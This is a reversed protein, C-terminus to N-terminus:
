RTVTRLELFGVGDADERRVLVMSDRVAMVTLGSPLTVIGELDETGFILWHHISDSPAVGERLWIRGNRDGHVLDFPPLSDPFRPNEFDLAAMRRIGTFGGAPLADIEAHDLALQAARMDETVVRRARDLRVIRVPQGLTDLWRLEWREGDSVVLGQDHVVLAPRLAFRRARYGGALNYVEIGPLALLTDVSGHQSSIRELAVMMRTVGEGTPGDSAGGYALFVGNPQAAVIGMRVGTPFEHMRFQRTFGLTDDYQHIMGRMYELLSVGAGHTYPVLSGMAPMEGPGEGRGAGTHRLSGDLSYSRLMTTAEDAVVVGEGMFQASTVGTMDNDASAEAGGLVWLPESLVLTPAAQALEGPIEVIQIGASDRSLPAGSVEGGGCAPLLSLV